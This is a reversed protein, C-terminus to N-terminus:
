NERRRSVHVDFNGSQLRLLWSERSVTPALFKTIELDSVSDAAAILIARLAFRRREPTQTWPSWPVDGLWQEITIEFDGRSFDSLAVNHRGSHNITKAPWSDEWGETIAVGQSADLRVLLVRKYFGTRLTFSFSEDSEELSALEGLKEALAALVSRVAPGTTRAWERKASEALAEYNSREKDQESVAELHAQRYIDCADELAPSLVSIREPPAEPPPTPERRSWINMPKKGEEFRASLAQDEDRCANGTPDARLPCPPFVGPAPPWSWGYGLFRRCDGCVQGRHPNPDDLGSITVHVPRHYGRWCRIAQRLNVLPGRER